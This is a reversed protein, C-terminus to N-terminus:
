VRFGLYLLRLLQPNLVETQCVMLEAKVGALETYAHQFCTDIADLDKMLSLYLTKLLPCHLRCSSVYLSLPEEKAPPLVDNEESDSIQKQLKSITAMHAHVSDMLKVLDPLTQPGPKLISCCLNCLYKVMGKGAGEGGRPRTESLIPKPWWVRNTWSDVLRLTTQCRTRESRLLLIEPGLTAHVLILPRPNTPTRSHYSILLPRALSIYRHVLKVTPKTFRAPM